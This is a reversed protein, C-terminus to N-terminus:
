PHLENWEDVTTPCNSPFSWSQTGDIGYVYNYFGFAEARTHWLATTADFALVWKRRLSTTTLKEIQTAGILLRTNRNTQTSAATAFIEITCDKQPTWGNSVVLDVGTAYTDIAYIRLNRTPFDTPIPYTTNNTAIVNQGWYLTCWEPTELEDM